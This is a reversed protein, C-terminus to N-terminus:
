KYFKREAPLTKLKASPQLNTAKLKLSSGLDLAYFPNSERDEKSNRPV